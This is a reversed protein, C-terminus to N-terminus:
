SLRRAASKKGISIGLVVSEIQKRVEREKEVVWDVAVPKVLRVPSDDITAIHAVFLEDPEEVHITGRCHTDLCSHIVDM